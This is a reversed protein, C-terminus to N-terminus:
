RSVGLDDRLGVEALAAATGAGLAAFRAEGTPLGTVALARAGQPSTVLIWDHAALDINTPVPLDDFRVLPLDLVAKKQLPNQWAM